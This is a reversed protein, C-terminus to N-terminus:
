SCTLQALSSPHWRGDYSASVGAPSARLNLAHRESQQAAVGLGALGRREDAEVRARAEGGVIVRATLFDEDELAVHQDAGISERGAVVELRRRGALMGGGALSAADEEDGQGLRDLDQL